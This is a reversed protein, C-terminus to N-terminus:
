LKIIYIIAFAIIFFDFFRLCLWKAYVDENGQYIIGSDEDIKTIRPKKLYTIREKAIWLYAQYTRYLIFTVLLGITIKKKM